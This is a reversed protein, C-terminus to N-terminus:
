FGRHQRQCFLPNPKDAYSLNKRQGCVPSLSTKRSSHASFLPLAHFSQQHQFVPHRKLALPEAILPIYDTLNNEVASHAAIRLQQGIGGIGALPNDHGVRHDAVVSDANFVGLGAFGPEASKNHMIHRPKGAIEATVQIQIGIQLVIM